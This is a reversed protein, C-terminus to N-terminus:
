AAMLLQDREIDNQVDLTTKFKNMTGDIVEAEEDPVEGNVMVEDVQQPQNM